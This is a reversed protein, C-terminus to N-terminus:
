RVTGFSGIWPGMKVVGHWVGDVNLRYEGDDRVDEQNQDMDEGEADGDRM